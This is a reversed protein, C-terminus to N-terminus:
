FCSMTVCVRADSRARILCSLDYFTWNSPCARQRQTPEGRSADNFRGPMLPMALTDSARDPAALESKWTRTVEPEGAPQGRCKLYRSRALGPEGLRGPSSCRGRGGFKITWAELQFGRGLAAAASLGPGPSGALSLM